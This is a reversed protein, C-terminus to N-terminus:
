VSQLYIPFDLFFSWIQLGNRWWCVSSAGHHLTMSNIQIQNKTDMHLLCLCKYSYVWIFFSTLKGCRYIANCWLVPGHLMCSDWVGVETHTDATSKAERRYEPICHVHTRPRQKIRTQPTSQVALRFWRHPHMVMVVCMTVDDYKWHMIPVVIAM